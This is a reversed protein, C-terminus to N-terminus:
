FNCKPTTGWWGPNVNVGTKCWGSKATYIYMGYSNSGSGWVFQDTDNILIAPIETVDNPVLYQKLNGIPYGANASGYKPYHNYTNYYLELSTKLSKVNSVRASDNGKTRATNLSALVISSLLGIIAIVVLLEILTFGRTRTSISKM